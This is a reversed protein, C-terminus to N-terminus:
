HGRRCGRAPRGLVGVRVATRHPRDLSDWISRRLRSHRHDVFLAPDGILLAADCSALMADLDPAHPVYAPSIEFRRACLIRTLVVSTRSSTDLALTRVDDIPRRTFLAVSAVPGDSAIGRGARRPRRAPRSVCDDPHHGLDIEGDALRQACASPLDFQVSVSITRSELGHVLPRANLYSVAGLRVPRSM